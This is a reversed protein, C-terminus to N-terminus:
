AEKGSLPLSIGFFSVSDLECQEPALEVGYALPHIATVARIAESAIEDLVLM